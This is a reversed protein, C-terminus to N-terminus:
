APRNGKENPGFRLADLGCTCAYSSHKLSECMAGRGDNRHRAYSLWREREAAVAADLEAQDYLPQTMRARNHEPWAAVADAPHATRGDAWYAPKADM